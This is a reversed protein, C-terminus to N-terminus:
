AMAHCGADVYITQGTMGSSADTCLFACLNAIETLTVLRKLPSKAVANAMLDDFSAIGSSARTLIPGPSVAHVRIGQEGLEMAMYRTLSELAAKVPGMLGYHPVAEDAGLYTMSLMSGGNPMHPACLKALRAFSHCSVAMARSFGDSSSDIVNGHLDALPAWAISHIVFDLQGMRAIAHQVAAELEGEEEVNCTVLEVGIPQTLPEVFRRAKDNLCSVVLEAGLQHMLQTCGWAISSENAVGLILGKKGALSFTSTNLTM